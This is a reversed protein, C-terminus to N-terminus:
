LSKAFFAVLFGLLYGGIIDIPFHVGSAIRAMGILLGVLMFIYGLKKNKFFIAFALASITASHGSPFAHGSEIFLVNIDNLITFPRDTQILEKLIKAMFWGLVTAVPIYIIEKWNNILSNYLSKLNYLKYYYFIFIVALAIMIYILPEALFWIIRDQWLCVSAFSNFFYFISINM